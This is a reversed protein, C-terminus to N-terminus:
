HNIVVNNKVTSQKEEEPIFQELCTPFCRPQNKFSKSFIVRNPQHFPLEPSEKKFIRLIFNHNPNIEDGYRQQNDAGEMKVISASYEKPLGIIEGSSQCAEKRGNLMKQYSLTWIVAKLGINGLQKLKERVKQRGGKIVYPRDNRPNIFAIIFPDHRQFAGIHEYGVDKAYLKTKM